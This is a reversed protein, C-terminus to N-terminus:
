KLASLAKQLDLPNTQDKAYESYIVKDDKDVVIIARANLQTESVLLRNEKSFGRTRYDSLVKVNKNVGKAGCYRSQAFPLDQSVVVFTVDKYKPALLNLEATQMSCVPTDLSPVTEIVKVGKLESLDTQSQDEIVKVPNDLLFNFDVKDGVKLATGTLKVGKGKIALDTGRNHSLLGTSKPNGDTVEKKYSSTFNALFVVDIILVFIIFLIAMVAKEKNVKHSNRM